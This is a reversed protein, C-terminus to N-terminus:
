PAEQDHNGQGLAAELATRLGPIDRTITKWVVFVDIGDYGHILANRMDYAERLPLDPFSARITREADLRLVRGAAEGLVELRRLVADQTKADRGFADVNMGAVYDQIAMASSLMDELCTRVDSRM